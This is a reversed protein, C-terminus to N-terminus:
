IAVTQWALREIPYPASDSIGIKIQLEKKDTIPVIYSYVTGEYNESLVTYGANSIIQDREEPPSEKYLTHLAALMNEATSDASYYDSVSEATRESLLSDSNAGSLILFSFSTLVLVTFFMILSVIGTAIVPKNGEYSYSEIHQQRM